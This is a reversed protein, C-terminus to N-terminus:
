CKASSLCCSIEVNQCKASILRSNPQTALSIKIKQCKSMACSRAAWAAIWSFDRYKSIQVSRAAWACKSMACSRAAWAAIWSSDQYKSIPVSRAAWAAIRNGDSMDQCKPIKFNQYKSIKVNRKARWYRRLQIAAQVARFTLIGCSGSKLRSNLQAALSLWRWIKVDREAWAGIWNRRLQYRPIKMIQYKPM